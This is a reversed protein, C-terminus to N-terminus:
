DSRFKTQGANIRGKFEQIINPIRPIRHQVAAKEYEAMISDTMADLEATQLAELGLEVVIRGKWTSKVKKMVGLDEIEFVIFHEAFNGQFPQVCIRWLPYHSFVPTRPEVAAKYQCEQRAAHIRRSWGIKRTAENIGTRSNIVDLLTI